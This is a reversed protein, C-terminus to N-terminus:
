DPPNEETGPTEDEGDGLREKLERIQVQAADLEAQLRNKQLRLVVVRRKLHASQAANLEAQEQAEALSVEEQSVETTTPEPVADSM